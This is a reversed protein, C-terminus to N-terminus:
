KWFDYVGFVRILEDLNTQGNAVLALGEHGMTRTKSQGKAAGAALDKADMAEFVAVRGSYGTKNCADCGRAKKVSWDSVPGLSTDVQALREYMARSKPAKSLDVPTACNQCLTRILRQAGVMRVVSNLLYDPIGMDILRLIADQARNTHLTSLVLHGTLAARIALEATESDRIEGVMLVDPDHRLVTRLAKAFTWDLDPNVEIQILGATQVEVPNEITVIKRGADNLQGLAAHLTTTKGSGTPGTVLILGNPQRLAASLKKAVTAPLQLDGMSSLGSATDLIRLVLTEGHITPASAVRMDISRGATKQRIRGDQPLRRESIDMDALIKLRSVMGDYLGREPPDTEVLIGDIRLRVRPGAELAEIHIDTARAEIARAFLTELYKITPADNALEMLRETDLDANGLGQSVITDDASERETDDRAFAAEIDRDTAIALHLGNGFILSLAKQVEQDYPDAVAILSRTPSIHVPAVGNRKLYDRSLRSDEPLTDPFDSATILPLRQDEACANAWETQSIMGLRDLVRRISQGTTESVEQIRAMDAPSIAGSKLFQSPLSDSAEIKKLV